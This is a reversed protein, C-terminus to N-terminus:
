TGGNNRMRSPSHTYRNSLRYWDIFRMFQWPDGNAVLGTAAPPRRGAAASDVLDSAYTVTIM